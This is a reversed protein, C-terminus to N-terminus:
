SESGQCPGECALSGNVYLQYRTDACVKAILTAGEAADFTKTFDYLRSELCIEDACIWLSM